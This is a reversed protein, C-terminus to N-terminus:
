RGGLGQDRRVERKRGGNAYVGVIRWKDEGIKIMKM